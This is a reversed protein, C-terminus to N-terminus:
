IKFGKKFEEVAQSIKEKLSDDLAKKEGIEKLLDEKNVTIFKLFEEDFKRIAEVPIDDLLGETGAFILMVQQEVPLPVYQGQKLLEVM